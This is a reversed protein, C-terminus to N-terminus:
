NACFWHVIMMLQEFRGDQHGEDTMILFNQQSHRCPLILNFSLKALNSVGTLLQSDQSMQWILTSCHWDICIICAQSFGTTLVNM